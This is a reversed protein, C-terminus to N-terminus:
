EKPPPINVKIWYSVTNVIRELYEEHRIPKVVFSNSGLEYCKKIDAENDSSTLMIIPIQKTLEDSKLTELVEFGNKVPMNIDLFVVDPPVANAHKGTHKVFEIAEQGNCVAYVTYDVYDIRQQLMKKFLFAHDENDDALLISVNKNAM